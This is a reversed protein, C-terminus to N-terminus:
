LESQNRPYGLAHQEETKVKMKRYTSLLVCFVAHKSYILSSGKWNYVM